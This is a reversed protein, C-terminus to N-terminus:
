KTTSARSVVTYLKLKECDIRLHEIECVIYLRVITQNGRREGAGQTKQKTKDNVEVYVIFSM